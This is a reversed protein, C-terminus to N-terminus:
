KVFWALLDSLSKKKIVFWILSFTGFGATATSAITIGAIAGGSLGDDETKPEDPTSALPQGDTKGCVSCTKPASTTADVWSHGLATGETKGCVSCTKPAECTADAMIHGLADGETEGCVSCTKPAECTADAWNHGRAETETEGCVTCIRAELCAADGWSHGLADGETEGCVSCTKPDFCTADDMIHGLADGETEGCVTCTKPLVCSADALTHGSALTDIEYCVTCRKHQTCTLESYTHNNCSIFCPYNAIIYENTFHEFHEPADCPHNFSTGASWGYNENYVYINNDVLTDLQIFSRDPGYHAQIEYGKYKSITTYGVLAGSEDYLLYARMYEDFTTDVYSIIAYSEYLAYEWGVATIDGYRMMELYGDYYFGTWGDVEVQVYYGANYLEETMEIYWIDDILTFDVRDGTYPSIIYIASFGENKIRYFGKYYDYLLKKVFLDWTSERMIGYGSLDSLGVSPANFQPFFVRASTADCNMCRRTDGSYLWYHGNADGETEGCLICTKPTECTAANWAHGLDGETEGCAECTKPAECTADNWSHGTAKKELKYCVTCYYDDVCSATTFHHNDEGCSIYCPAIMMFDEKTWDAYHSPASCSVTLSIDTAWGFSENFYKWEGNDLTAVFDFSRDSNYYVHTQYRDDYLAILSNSVIDGNVSYEAEVSLHWENLDSGFTIVISNLYVTYTWVNFVSDTYMINELEGGRYLADWGDLTVYIFFLTNYMDESVELSWFGDSLEFYYDNYDYFSYISVEDFGEDKVSLIGNEYSYEVNKVFVDWISSHYVNLESLNTPVFTPETPTPISILPVTILCTSCTRSEGEYTWDHGSAEGEAEGCVECTKPTECTADNWDHGLAAGETEGCVECIKPDLCTADAWRHGNADGETEGCYICSKPLTCTANNFSHGLADGETEGCVTCTKPNDCDAAAFSHGPATQEINFCVTCYKDLTCTLTTYDHEGECEIVCPLLYTFTAETYGYFEDPAACSTQFNVNKSWGYEDCYHYWSDNYYVSIANLSRDSNYQVCVNADDIYCSSESYTLDGDKNYRNEVTITSGAVKLEISLFFSDEYVFVYWYSPYYNSYYIHELTELDSFMGEWGDYFVYTYFEYNYVDESMEIQWFNDVLTPYYNEGNYLSYFSLSDFGNNKVSLVGNEYTADLSKTFVGWIESHYIGYGSLNRSVYTVNEPTPITPLTDVADCISCSMMKGDYIWSHGTPDDHTEGCVSCVKPTICNSESFSHGASKRELKYCNVCYEDQVCSLETFSHNGCDIVCPLMALVGEYTLHSYNAPAECPVYSIISSSWLDGEFLYYWGDDYLSICDLERENNYAAYVHEDGLYVEQKRLDNTTSYLNSIRCKVGHIYTYYEIYFSSSYATLRFNYESDENHYEVYDFETGYYSVTWYGSQIQFRGEGSYRDTNSVWKGDILEFNIIGYSFDQLVLNPFGFDEVTLCGDEYTVNM